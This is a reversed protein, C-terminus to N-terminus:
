NKICIKLGKSHIRIAIAGLIRLIVGKSQATEVIKTAEEIIEKDSLRAVM